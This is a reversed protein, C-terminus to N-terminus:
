SIDPQHDLIIADCSSWVPTLVHTTTDRNTRKERLQTSMSREYAVTNDRKTTRAQTTDLMVKHPARYKTAEKITPWKNEM